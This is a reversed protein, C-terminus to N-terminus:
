KIISIFEINTTWTADLSWMGMVIISAGTYILYEYTLTTYQKNFLTLPFLLM